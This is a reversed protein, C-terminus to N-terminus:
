LVIPSFRFLGPRQVAATSDMKQAFAKKKKGRCCPWTVLQLHLLTHFVQPREAQGVHLWRAALAGVDESWATLPHLMSRQTAPFVHIQQHTQLRAEQRSSYKVQRRQESRVFTNEFEDSWFTGHEEFSVFGCVCGSQWVREPKWLRMSGEWPSSHWTRTIGDHSMM